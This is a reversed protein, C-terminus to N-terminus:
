KCKFIGKQYEWGYPCLLRFNGNNCIVWVKEQIKSCQVNEMKCYTCDTGANPGYCFTQGNKLTVGGSDLPGIKICAMVGGSIMLCAGLIMSILTNKM